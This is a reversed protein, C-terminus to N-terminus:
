INEIEDEKTDKTIDEVEKLAIEKEKEIENEKIQNELMNEEAVEKEALKELDRDEKLKENKEDNEENDDMEEKEDMKLIGNIKDLKFNFEENISNLAINLETITRQVNRYNVGLEEEKLFLNLKEKNILNTLFNIKKNEILDPNDHSIKDNISKKRNKTFSKAKEFQKKGFNLIKDKSKKVKDMAGLKRQYNEIIGNEVLIKNNRIKKSNLSSLFIILLIINNLIKM